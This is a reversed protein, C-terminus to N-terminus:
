IGLEKLKDYVSFRIFPTMRPWRTVDQFIPNNYDALSNGFLSNCHYQGIFVKKETNRVQYYYLNGSDFRLKNRAGHGFIWLHTTNPNCIIKIAENKSSIEYVKYIIPTKHNRFRKILIDMGDMYIRIKKNSSSNRHAIIIAHHPEQSNFENYKQVCKKTKKGINYYFALSLIMFAISILLGIIITLEYNGSTLIILTLLPILLVAVVVCLTQIILQISEIVEILFENCNNVM